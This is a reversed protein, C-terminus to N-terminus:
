PVEQERVPRMQIEETYHSLQYQNPIRKQGICPAASHLRHDFDISVWWVWDSVQNWAMALVSLWRNCQWSQGCSERPDKGAFSWGHSTFAKSDSKKKYDCWPKTPRHLPCRKGGFELARRQGKAGQTKNCNRGPHPRDGAVTPIRLQGSKLRGPCEISCMSALMLCHCHWQVAQM